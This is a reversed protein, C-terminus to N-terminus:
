EVFPPVCKRLRASFSCGEGNWRNFIKSAVPLGEINAADKAAHMSQFLDGEEEKAEGKARTGMMM